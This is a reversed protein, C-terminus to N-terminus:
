ERRFLTDALSFNYNNALRSAEIGLKDPATIKVGGNTGPRQLIVGVPFAACRDAPMRKSKVYVAEAVCCDAPM